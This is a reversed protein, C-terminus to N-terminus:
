RRAYAAAIERVHQTTDPVGQIRLAREQATWKSQVELKRQEIGAIQEPSPEDPICRSRERRGQRNALHSLQDKRREDLTSVTMDMAFAIESRTSGQEWMDFVVLVQEPTLRKNRSPQQM